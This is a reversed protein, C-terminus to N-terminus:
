VGIETLPSAATQHEQFNEGKATTSSRLPLAAAAPAAAQNKQGDNAQDVNLATASESMAGLKFKPKPKQAHIGTYLRALRANEYNELLIKGAQENLASKPFPEILLYWSSIIARCMTMSCALACRSDSYDSSQWACAVM